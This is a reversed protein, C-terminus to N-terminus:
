SIPWNVLVALADAVAAAVTDAVAAAVVEAGVLVVLRPAELDEPV